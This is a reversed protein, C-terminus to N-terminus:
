GASVIAFIPIRKPIRKDDLSLTDLVSTYAQTKQINAPARLKRRTHVTGWPDGPADGQCEHLRASELRASPGM